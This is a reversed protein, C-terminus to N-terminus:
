INPPIVTYANSKSCSKCLAIPGFDLNTRYLDLANRQHTFYRKQVQTAFIMVFYEFNFNTTM